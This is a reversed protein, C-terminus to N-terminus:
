CRGSDLQESYHDLAARYFVDGFYSESTMLNVLAWDFGRNLAACDVPAANALGTTTVLGAAVLAGVALMRITMTRM